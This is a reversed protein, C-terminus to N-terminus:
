NIVQLPSFQNSSQDDNLVDKDDVAWSLYETSPDDRADKYFLDKEQGIRKVWGPLPITEVGNELCAHFSMVVQNVMHGDCIVGFNLAGFVTSDAWTEVFYLEYYSNVDNFYRPAKQLYIRVVRSIWKLIDLKLFILM